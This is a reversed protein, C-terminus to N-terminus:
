RGPRTELGARRLRAAHNREARGPDSPTSGTYITQGTPSRFAVHNGGTRTVTWGRRRAIRALRRLEPTLKLTKRRSVLRGEPDALGDGGPLRRHGRDV